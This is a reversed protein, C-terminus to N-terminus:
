AARAKDIGLRRDVGAVVSPASVSLGHCRRCYSEGPLQENGCFFKPENGTWLPWQCHHSKLDAASIRAPQWGASPAVMAAERKEHLTICISPIESPASGPYAHSPMKRQPPVGRLVLRVVPSRQTKTAASALDIKRRRCRGIVANRTTGIVEAIHSASYDPALERMTADHADTWEWKM